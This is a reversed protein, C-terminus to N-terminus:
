KKRIMAGIKHEILYRKNIVKTIEGAVLGIVVVISENVGLGTLNEVTFNIGTVVLLASLRYLFSKINKNM